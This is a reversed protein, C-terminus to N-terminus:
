FTLLFQSGGEKQTGDKHTHDVHTGTLYEGGFRNLWLLSSSWAISVLNAERKKKITVLLQAHHGHRYDWYEPPPFLFIM